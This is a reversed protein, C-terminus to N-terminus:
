PTTPNLATTFQTGGLNKLLITFMISNEPEIDRDRTFNQNFALGVTLCEDQYTLGINNQVTQGRQIDHRTYANARWYETLRYGLSGQIEERASRTTSFSEDLYAYGLSTSFDGVYAYADVENRRFTFDDKDLRFRHEVMFKDSPELTIRGVYDSEQDRLGSATRFTNNERLRYTQGLELSASGGEEGHVSTRFGVNARAGGEWRDLGAFRSPDFLNTTDFEFSLSDEDSIEDRQGTNPAYILQVIPEVIQRTTGATRVLPWRWEAGVTPLIRGVTTPDSLSGNPLLVNDTHYLDGRASTFFSYVEGTSLITEANWGLDLSLRRSDAGDNRNLVLVNVDATATGGAVDEPYEYHYNLLPAIVPTTRPNDTSLLGQFYFTETSFENRGNESRVFATTTLDTEDSINFRRLFTDDTTLETKFGWRWNEDIQFDGYSFLSGRFSETSPTGAVSDDPWIAAVDFEMQGSTLRHRYEVEYLISEKTMFTPAITADINEAIVWYYPLQFYTGLDSSVGFSPALFGSQRDVTPDPHSFFPIYAIPVGFLEFFADEYIIRQEEQNHIVRFAKIQWLPTTKGEENCVDCPSYVGKYVTTVNGNRRQAETGALRSQDIMLVQLTDVVGARLEDSLEVNDSFIVEGTPEVLVVNGSALVVGTEEYYIMKDATMVRDSFAVEVNGTATVTKSAQDYSLEDAQMLVEETATQQDEEALAQSPVIAVASSTALLIAFATQAATLVQSIPAGAM